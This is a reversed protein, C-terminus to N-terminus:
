REVTRCADLDEVEAEGARRIRSDRAGAIMEARQVVHRGFLHDAAMEIVAGIDVGDTHERILQQRVLLRKGPRDVVARMYRIRLERTVGISVTMGPTSGSIGFIM